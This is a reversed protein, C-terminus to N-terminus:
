EFVDVVLDVLVHHGGVALRGAHGSLKIRALESIAKRSEPIRLAKSSYDINGSRAAQFQALRDALNLCPREVRQRKAGQCDSSGEVAGPLERM